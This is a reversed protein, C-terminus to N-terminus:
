KHGRRRHTRGGGADIDVNGDRRVLHRRLLDPRALFLSPGRKGPSGVSM